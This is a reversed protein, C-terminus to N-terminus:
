LVCAFFSLFIFSFRTNNAARQMDSNKSTMFVYLIIKTNFIIHLLYYVRKKREATSWKIFHLIMFVTFIIMRLSPFFGSLIFKYNANMDNLRIKFRKRAEEFWIGCGYLLVKERVRWPFVPRTQYQNIILKVTIFHLLPEPEDEMGSITQRLIFPFM